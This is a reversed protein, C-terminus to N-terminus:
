SSRWHTGLSPWGKEVNFPADFSQLHTSLSAYRVDHHWATPKLRNKPRDDQVNLMIVVTM